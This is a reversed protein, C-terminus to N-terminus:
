GYFRRAVCAKQSPNTQQQEDPANNLYKTSAFRKSAPSTRIFAFALRTIAIAHSKLAKQDL